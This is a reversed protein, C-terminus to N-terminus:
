SAAEALYSFAAEMDPEIALATAEIGQADLADVDPLVVAVGLAQAAEMIKGRALMRMGAVVRQFRQGEFAVVIHAPELVDAGEIGGIDAQM